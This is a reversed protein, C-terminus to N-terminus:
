PSGARPPPTTHVTGNPTHTELTGDPLLKQHWGPQHILHHHHWCTPRLNTLNTHGGDEWATIHHGDRPTEDCDPFFCRGEHELLLATWLAPSITRTTHGFDLVCSDGARIVRHINADCLLQAISAASYPTDGTLNVGPTHGLHDLDVVVNLHPRNRGGTATDHHDLYFRAMAVLADGRRQAPTRHQDPDDPREALRLATRVTDTSESDLHGTLEGRGSLTSSLYLQRDPDLTADGTSGDPGLLTDAWLAFQRM